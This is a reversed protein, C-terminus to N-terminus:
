GPPFFSSRFPCMPLFVSCPLTTEEQRAATNGASSSQGVPKQVPNALIITGKGDVVHANTVVYGEAVVFGTGMSASDGHDVLVYVVAREMLAAIERRREELLALIDPGEQRAAAGPLAPPVLLLAAALIVARAISQADSRHLAPM